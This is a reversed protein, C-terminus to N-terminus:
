VGSLRMARRQPVTRDTNSVPLVMGVSARNRSYRSALPSIRVGSNNSFGLVRGTPGRGIKRLM